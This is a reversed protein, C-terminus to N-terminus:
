KGNKNGRTQNLKRTKVGVMYVSNEGTNVLKIKPKEIYCRPRLEKKPDNDDNWSNFIMEIIKKDKNKIALEIANGISISYPNILSSIHERDKICNKM